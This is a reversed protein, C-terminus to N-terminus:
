PLTLWQFWITVEGEEGRGGYVYVCVLLCSVCVCLLVGVFQQKHFMPHTKRTVFITALNDKKKGEGACLIRTNRVIYLLCQLM